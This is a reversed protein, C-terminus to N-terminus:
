LRLVKTMMRVRTKEAEVDDDDDDEDDDDDDVLSLGVSTSLCVNNLTENGCPHIKELNLKERIGRWASKQKKTGTGKRQGSCDRTCFLFSTM